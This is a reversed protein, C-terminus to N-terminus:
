REPAATSLQDPHLQESFNELIYQLVGTASGRTQNRQLNLGKLKM